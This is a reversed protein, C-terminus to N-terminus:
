VIVHDPQLGTHLRVAIEASHVWYYIARELARTVSVLYGYTSHDYASILEFLENLDRHVREEQTLLTEYADADGEFVIREFLDDIEAGTTFIDAVRDEVIGTTTVDNSEVVDAVFCARDGIIELNTAITALDSAIRNGPWGTTLTYSKLENLVHSYRENALSEFASAPREPTNGLFVSQAAAYQETTVDSLRQLPERISADRDTEDGPSAALANPGDVQGVVPSIKTAQAYATDEDVVYAKKVVGSRKLHQLLESLYQESIGIEDALDAKTEPASHDIVEILQVLTANRGQPTFDHPRYWRRKSM